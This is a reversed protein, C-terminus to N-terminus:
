KLALVAKLSKQVHPDSVLAGSSHHRVTGERDIVFTVRDNLQWIKSSSRLGFAGYVDGKPDSLVPFSLQYKTHFTKQKEVGDTSIGVIRAGASAFEEFSDRFACAEATCVPTFARPYFFVVVPGEKLLDYLSVEAGDQDLLTFDPAKAGDKLPRSLLKPSM